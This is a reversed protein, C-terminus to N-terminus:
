SLGTKKLYTMLVLLDAPNIGAIKKAEYITKPSYEKLKEISEVKMGKIMDYNINSPLPKSEQDKIRKIEKEQKIIYGEYKIHILSKEALKIQDSTIINAALLDDTSVEPRKLLTYIPMKQKLNFQDILLPPTRMKKWDQLLGYIKTEQDTILSMEAKTLLGHDYAKQGLRFIANDQRLILRYESRSTLMRYPEFINKTILDDILSGIYAEERKLVFRPRSQAKLAANIGAVLGQGAAEEYGSTGNIQGGLFLGSIKKTELTPLLQDPYVFDYEVAYGNKLIQVEELGTMSKLFKEQVDAPLSTNLGQPYISHSDKGEPELFIQHSPKDSFRVVKDEISPCYRPGAGKIVKTYLPSRDLNSLIIEHTKTNTHTLHCNLQNKYRDTEPSRFSFYLPEPDGPQPALKSFDISKKDLRPPTGTKLRGLRFHSRLSEALSAVSREGIRGGQLSTLGTHMQAKLFTGTTIVISSAFFTDGKDTQIGKVANNEIILADVASENVTINPTTLIKNQMYKQYDYKDNQSRLCHVAPGRSRNLIRMQLITEDAALGMEGGLADVEGVIQGKAPGGISPNCPMLGITEKTLTCVLTKSGLRASALAAEIGAHGAGIIIVDYNHNNM